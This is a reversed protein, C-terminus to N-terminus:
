GNCQSRCGEFLKGGEIGERSLFPHSLRHDDTDSGKDAGNETEGHLFSGFIHKQQANKQAHDCKKNRAHIETSEKSGDLFLGCLHVDLFRTVDVRDLQGTICVPDTEIMRVFFLCGSGKEPFLNDACPADVLRDVQVHLFVACQQDRVAGLESRLILHPIKNFFVRIRFLQVIHVPLSPQELNNYGDFSCIFNFPHRLM